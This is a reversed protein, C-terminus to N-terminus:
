KKIKHIFEKSFASFGDSLKYCKGDLLFGDCEQGSSSAEVTDALTTEFDEVSYVANIDISQRCSVDTM